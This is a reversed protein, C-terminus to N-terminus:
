GQNYKEQLSAVTKLQGAILRQARVSKAQQLYDRRISAPLDDWNRIMVDVLVEYPLKTEARLQKLRDAAERSLRMAVKKSDLKSLDQKQLKLNASDQIKAQSATLSQNQGEMAEAFLEDETQLDPTTFDQKEFEPKNTALNSPEVTPINPEDTTGLLLPPTKIQVPGTPLKKKNKPLNNAM